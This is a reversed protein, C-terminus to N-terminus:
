VVTAHSDPIADSKTVPTPIAKEGESKAAVITATKEYGLSKAPSSSAGLFLIVGQLILQTWSIPQGSQEQAIYTALVTAVIGAITQWQGRLNRALYSTLAVAAAMVIVKTSTEGKSILDYIPLAIASLLGIILVKNKDFWEKM